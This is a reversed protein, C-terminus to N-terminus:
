RLMGEPQDIIIREASAPAVKPTQNLAIFLGGIGILAGIIAVVYSQSFQNAQLQSTDAQTKVVSGAEIRAMREKLDDIKDDLGGTAGTILASQQDIQKSTAAESKSISLASSRNQEGVAEKAAQLAADIALKGDRSSQEVRTDREIFQTHVGEFKELLLGKLADVNAQVNAPKPEKDVNAQLLTIAKDSAEFRITLAKQREEFRADFLERLGAIERYLQATTLSSPDPFNIPAHARPQAFEDAM